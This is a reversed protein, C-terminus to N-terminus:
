GDLEGQLQRYLQELEASDDLYKRLRRMEPEKNQLQDQNAAWFAYLEEGTDQVNQYGQSNQYELVLENFADATDNSPMTAAEKIFTELAENEVGYEGLLSQIARATSIADERAM